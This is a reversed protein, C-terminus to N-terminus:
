YMITYTTLCDISLTLKYQNLLSPMQDMVYFFVEVGWERRYCFPSLKYRNHPPPPMGTASPPMGFDLM